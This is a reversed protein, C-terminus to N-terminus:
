RFFLQKGALYLFGGTGTIGIGRWVWLKLKIKGNEERLSINQSEYSKYLGRYHEMNAVSKLAEVETKDLDEQLKQNREILENNREELAINIWYMAVADQRYVEKWLLKELTVQEQLENLFVGKEKQYILRKPPRRLIDLTDRFGPSVSDTSLVTRQLGHTSGYTMEVVTLLLLLLSLRGLSRLVNNKM